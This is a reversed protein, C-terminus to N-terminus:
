VVANILAQFKKPDLSAGGVGVGSLYEERVFGAVNEHTVSGGYLIPVPVIDHILRAAKNAHEPTDSTGSGIAFLPEYLILGSESFAPVLAHLREAQHTESVCVIPRIGADLARKVKESVVEDTEGFYKRRESHGIMTYTVLDKVMAASIAGTFAGSEYPSIDQVGLAYRAGHQAFLTLHHFAPCVILTIDQTKGALDPTFNQVWDRAEEMTKNSKWNGLIYIKKMGPLSIEVMAENRSPLKMEKGKLPKM